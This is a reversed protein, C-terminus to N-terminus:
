EVMFSSMRIADERKDFDTVLMHVMHSIKHANLHTIKDHRRRGGGSPFNKYQENDSCENEDSTMYMQTYICAKWQFDAVLM